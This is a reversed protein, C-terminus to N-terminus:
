HKNWIKATARKANRSTIYAPSRTRCQHGTAADVKIHSTRRM